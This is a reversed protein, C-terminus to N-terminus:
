YSGDSHVNTAPTRYAIAPEGTSCENDGKNNAMTCSWRVDIFDFVSDSKLRKFNSKISVLVMSSASAHPYAPEIGFANGQANVPAGNPLNLVVTNNSFAIAPELSTTSQEGNNSDLDVFLLCM